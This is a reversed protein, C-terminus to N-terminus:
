LQENIPQPMLFATNIIFVHFRRPNSNKEPFPEGSIQNLFATNKVPNKLANREICGQRSDLQHPRGAKNHAQNDQPRPAVASQGTM